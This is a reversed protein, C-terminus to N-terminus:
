HPYMWYKPQEKNPMHRLTPTRLNPPHLRTVIIRALDDLVARSGSYTSHNLGLMDDGVATVDIIEFGDILNPGNVDIFGMRTGWAKKDSALLARDVSSAYITVSGAVAKIEAAKSMFVDKDVDPAAFVLESINLKVDSLAARQLADVAVQSGLSHAVVFIKKNAVTSTVLKLLNFLDGSSFNASERDYDYKLPQGASPWSFVITTGLFNADYAIQAAKFVADAFPVNYGHVFVMVSDTDERLANVFEDDSLRTLRQIRFSDENTEKGQILGFLYSRPREVHGIMHNKPVSVVALGYTVKFDRESTISALEFTPAEIIKRNTAFFVPQLAKVGERALAEKQYARTLLWGLLSVGLAGLGFEPLRLQSWTSPAKEAAAPSQRSDQEPRAGPPEQRLPKDELNKKRGLDELTPLKKLIGGLPRRLIQARPPGVQALRQVPVEHNTQL